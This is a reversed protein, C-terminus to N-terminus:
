SELKPRIFVKKQTEKSVEAVSSSSSSTVRRRKRGQAVQFGEEIGIDDIEDMNDTILKISNNLALIM